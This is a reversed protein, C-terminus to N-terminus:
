MCGAMGLRSVGSPLMRLDMDWGWIRRAQDFGIFGQILGALVLLWCSVKAERFSDFFGDLATERTSEGIEKVLPVRFPDVLVIM